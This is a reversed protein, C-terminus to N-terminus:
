AVACLIRDGQDHGYRDNAAKFNDLDIFLIALGSQDAQCRALTADALELWLRRSALGTLEDLRAQTLEANVQVNEAMADVLAARMRQARGAY